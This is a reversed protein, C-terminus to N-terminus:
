RSLRTRPNLRRAATMSPYNHAGEAIFMKAYEGPVPHAQTSTPMPKVRVRRQDSGPRHRVRWVERMTPHDLLEHQRNGSRVHSRSKLKLENQLVSSYLCRQEYGAKLGSPKRFRAKVM